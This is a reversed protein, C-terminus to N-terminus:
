GEERQSKLFESVVQRLGDVSGVATYATRMAAWLLIVGMVSWEVAPTLAAGAVAVGWSIVFALLGHIREPSFKKVQELLQSSVLALAALLVPDFQPLNM